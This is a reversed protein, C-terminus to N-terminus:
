SVTRAKGKIFRYLGLLIRLIPNNELRHIRREFHKLIQNLRNNPIEWLTVSSLNLGADLMLGLLKDRQEVAHERLEYFRGRLEYSSRLLTRDDPHAIRPIITENFDSPTLRPPLAPFDIGSHFNLKKGIGFLTEIYVRYVLTYADEGIQYGSAGSKHSWMGDEKFYFDHFHFFIVNYRKDDAIQRITLRQDTSFLDYKRLNWPAVGGGQHSSVAVCAYATPWVDLYKQDGFKGDEIRAFCWTICNEYWTELVNRGAADNRFTVFQVCYIGSTASQDYEPAYNHPTILVSKTGLEDLLIQPDDFFFTDADLYTCEPLNYTTLCYRITAPTCTWCYEQRTRDKKASLLEPSEFDSLPIVTLRPLQLEDLVQKVADDMALVYLHFEATHKELSQYLALGRSSYRLDFLTCFNLIKM